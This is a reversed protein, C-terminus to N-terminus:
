FRNCGDYKRAAVLFKLSKKENEKKFMKESQEIYFLNRIREAKWHYGPRYSRTLWWQEIPVRANQRAGHHSTQTRVSNVIMYFDCVRRFLIDPVSVLYFESVSVLYFESVSM